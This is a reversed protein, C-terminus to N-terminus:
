HLNNLGINREKEAMSLATPFSSYSLIFHPRQLKYRLTCCREESGREKELLLDSFETWTLFWDQM